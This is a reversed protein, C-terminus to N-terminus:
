EGKRDQLISFTEQYTQDVTKAIDKENWTSINELNSSFSDKVSNRIYDHLQGTLNDVDAIEDAIKLTGAGIDQMVRGQISHSIFEIFISEMQEVTMDDLNSVGLNPLAIITEVWSDRAISEDIPGGEQNRCIVETLSSCIEAPTKGSLHSLNLTKLTENLGAGKISQFLHLIKGATVRSGGMKQAAAKAGGTGSRVYSGMALSCAGKDGGGSKFFKNFHKRPTRFRQLQSPKSIAPRPISEVSEDGDSAPLLVSVPTKKPLWTPVLPTENKPGKTPASTGM